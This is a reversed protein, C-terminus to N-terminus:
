ELRCTNEPANAHPIATAGPPSSDRTLHRKRQALPALACPVGLGAVWFLRQWVKRARSQSGSPARERSGASSSCTQFSTSPMKEASGDLTGVARSSDDM